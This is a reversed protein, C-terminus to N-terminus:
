TGCKNATDKMQRAFAKYDDGFIESTVSFMSVDIGDFGSEALIEIAKIMGYTDALFHTQTSIKM